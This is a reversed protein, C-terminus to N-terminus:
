VFKITTKFTWFIGAGKSRSVTKKDTNLTYDVGVFQSPGNDAFTSRAQLSKGRISQGTGLPVNVVTPSHV